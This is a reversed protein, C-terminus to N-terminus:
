RDKISQIEVEYAKKNSQVDTDCSIENIIKFTITVPLGGWGNKYKDAVSEVMYLDSNYTFYASYDKHCDFEIQGKPMIDVDINKFTKNHKSCSVFLFTLAFFLTTLPKM